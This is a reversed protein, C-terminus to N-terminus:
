FISRGIVIGVVEDELTCFSYGKLLCHPIVETQFLMNKM